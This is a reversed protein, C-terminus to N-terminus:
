VADVLKTWMSQAATIIRANAGYTNQLAIMSSMEKDIQVGSTAAVRSSLGTQVATENGLQATVTASQQSQAGVLSAALGALTAPASYPASLNGAPGLGSTVSAPQPVGAQAQPGLAYSLIRSVLTNFGAPGVAPNPTFASAGTPSGAVAQTGDRVLSPTARVAPNVQLTQALGVYGSQPPAGGGAPVAGSGDTFLVLGQAAFRSALNQSFEDLEGQFTPLVVDRLAINAGISGSRLQGTIDVGGLTIAPIGGGPYYTAAGITGQTATVPNAPGHIPLIVGAPTALTVDGNSQNLVKVGVLQSLTQVAADRQNELDATSLGQVKLAVIQDSLAGVAGLTQNMTAIDSVINDQATQRQSDYAGALQNVGDALSGAAGVLSQQLTQNDPSGLLGSFADGLKGLRSALDSGQGPTGQVSDIAQLATQTITLSSVTANQKLLDAALQVDIQRVTPGTRVGMAMGGATVSSQTAAERAYGPSGANAINQSVVALQADITNIGGSAILLAGSLSM